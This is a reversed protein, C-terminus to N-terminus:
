TMAAVSSAAGAVTRERQVVIERVVLFRMGFDSASQIEIPGASRPFRLQIQRMGLAHRLLRQSANPVVVPWDPEGKPM